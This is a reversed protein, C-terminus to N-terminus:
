SHKIKAGTLSVVLVEGISLVDKSVNNLLFKKTFSTFAFPRLNFVLKFLEKIRFTFSEANHVTFIIKTSMKINNKLLKIKAPPNVEDEFLGIILVLDFKKKIKVPIEQYSLQLYKDNAYDVGLYNAKPFYKQLYGDGCGIDIINIGRKNYKKSLKEWM